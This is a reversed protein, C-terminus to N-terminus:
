PPWTRTAAATTPARSPAATVPHEAPPASLVEPRVDPLGGADVVADEAGAEVVGVDAAEVVADLV